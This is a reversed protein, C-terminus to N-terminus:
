RGDILTIVSSRSAAAVASQGRGHEVLESGGLGLGGELDGEGDVLSPCLTPDRGRGGSRATRM